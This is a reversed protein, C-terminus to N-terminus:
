LEEAPQEEKDDTAEAENFLHTQVEPDVIMRESKPGYMKQRLLRLEMELRDIEIDKSEITVANKQLSSKLESVEERLNLLEAIM